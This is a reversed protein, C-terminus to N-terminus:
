AKPDDKELSSMLVEEAEPYEAIVSGVLQKVTDMEREYVDSILSFGLVAFVATWILNIGILIVVNRKM